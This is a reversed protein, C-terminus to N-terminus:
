SGLSEPSKEVPTALGCSVNGVVAHGSRHGVDCLVTAEEALRRRDVLVANIQLIVTPRIPPERDVRADAVVEPQTEVEILMGVGYPLLERRLGLVVFVIQLIEL